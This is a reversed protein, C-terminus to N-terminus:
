PEQTDLAKLADPTIQGEKQGTKIKTDSRNRVVVLVRGLRGKDDRVRRLLDTLQEAVEPEVEVTISRYTRSGGSSRSSMDDGPDGPRGGVALVRLNEILTYTRRAKNGIILGGLLDVRDNVRLMKGPARGPDVELTYGRKSMEISDSPVRPGAGIVDSLFVFRNKEVRAGVKNNVVLTLHSRIAVGELSVSGGPIDVVTVDGRGIEEGRKMDRTWKLVQVVEGTIRREQVHAYAYFMGVALAGLLLSVILLKKNLVMTEAM